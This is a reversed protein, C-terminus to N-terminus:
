GILLEDGTMALVVVGGVSADGQHATHIQIRRQLTGNQIGSQPLIHGYRDMITDPLGPEGPIHPIGVCALQRGDPLGDPLCQFLKRGISQVALPQLGAIVM